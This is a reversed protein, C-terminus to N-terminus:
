GEEHLCEIITSIDQDSLGPHVPVTVISNITKESNPCVTRFKRLIAYDYLPRYDYRVTESPVGYKKLGSLTRSTVPGFDKRRLVLAYFNATYKEEVRLAEFGSSGLTSAIREANKTRTAIQADILPLRSIGIAAQLGSLKYNLGFDVGGMMGFQVFCRIRDAMARDNTLIFGGEGTSLLKRDHTSFCGIRGMTGVYRDLIKSGHAQAADEILCIENQDCFRALGSVDFPYGWMPVTIVAKTRSTVSCIVSNLDFGFGSIETDCFVPTAHLALVPLATMIPATPPIIVESREDVGAVFLSAILAATGSSLAIAHSCEFYHALETEYRGVADSTGSLKKTSLVANLQALDDEINDTLYKDEM